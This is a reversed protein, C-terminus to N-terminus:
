GCAARVTVFESTCTIDDFDVRDPVEFLAQAYKAEGLSPLANGAFTKSVDNSITTYWASEILSKTEFWIFDFPAQSFCAVSYKIFNIGQEPTDHECFTNTSTPAFM